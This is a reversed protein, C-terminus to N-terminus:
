RNWRIVLLGIGFYPVFYLLNLFRGGFSGVGFRRGSLLGLAIRGRGRGGLDERFAFRKQLSLLELVGNDIVDGLNRNRGLCSLRLGFAPQGLARRREHGRGQGRGQGRM